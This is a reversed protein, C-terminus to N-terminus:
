GSVAASAVSRYLDDGYHAAEERCSYALKVVHDNDSAVARRVIAEWSLPQAAPAPRARAGSALLAAAYALAYWGLAPANDKGLWPAIVRMAHCSTILHLVTFDRTQLYREAATRSLQRLTGPSTRLDGAADIFGPLAAAEAMRLFILGQDSSWGTGLAEVQSLWHAVEDSNPNAPLTTALPLARCAWYALGAALEGAHDAELAYATRILGHFAAAGVGPMLLPLANELVADAGDRELEARLAEFTGAYGEIRGLQRRWDPAAEAEALPDLRQAYRAAFEHVRQADAGLRQLAVLAMPLHNSLGDNYEPAHRLGADLLKTVNM